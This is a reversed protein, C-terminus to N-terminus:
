AVGLLYHLEGLTRVQRGEREALRREARQMLRRGWTDPASDGISGFISQGAQPPFTGATLTLAPEISFRNADGLWTEDYEFTVTEGRRSAQRHLIGLPRVQGELDIHVEVDTM